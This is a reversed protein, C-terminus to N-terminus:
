WEKARFAQGTTAGFISIAATSVGTSVCSYYAGVPLWLSPQTAAATGGELNIWIDGTSQNQIECGGRSANSNMLSQALGGSTITGSHDTTTVPNGKVSVAGATSSPSVLLNGHVDLSLPYSQNLQPSPSATYVGSATVQAQGWALAPMLAALLWVAFFIRRM